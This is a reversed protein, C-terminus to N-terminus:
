EKTYRLRPRFFVFKSGKSCSAKGMTLQDAIARHVLVAAVSSGVGGSLACIAAHAHCSNGRSM